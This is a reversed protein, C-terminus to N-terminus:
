LVGRAKLDRYLTMSKEEWYADRSKLYEHHYDRCHLSGCHLPEIVDDRNMDDINMDEVWKM